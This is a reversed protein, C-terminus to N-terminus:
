KRLFLIVAGGLIVIGVFAVMDFPQFGLSFAALMGLLLGVVGLVPSILFFTMVVGAMIIALVTGDLNGILDYALSRVGIFTSITNIIGSLSGLAYFDAIYTGNGHSAINCYITASSSTECTQCINYDDTQNRKIVRLCGALVDGSPKVFTLVFNNSTSNFFLNYEFNKFKEFEFITPALIEFIQPTESVKYPSTSKITTGNKVLIFKYLSDYWNLYSLDKGETSTKAMSVTYFTDTGIDYLQISIYVEGIPNQSADQVQLETLTAESDNILYLTINTTVNTLELDTLYHFNKSYSVGDLEVEADVFLTDNKSSCFAWSSNVESM